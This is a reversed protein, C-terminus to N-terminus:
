NILGKEGKRKKMGSLPITFYFCTGRDGFTSNPSEFWIRGEFNAIIEKIIYLDLGTGYIEKDRVNDARFFKAFMKFQEAEPIGLGDDAVKIM